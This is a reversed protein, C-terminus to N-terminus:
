IASYVEVSHCIAAMVEEEEEEEDEEKEKNPEGGYLQASDKNMPSSKERPQATAVSIDKELCDRAFQKCSFCRENDRSPSRSADRPRRTPSKSPSRVRSQRSDSRYHYSDPRCYSGRSTNYGRSKSRSFSYGRRNRGYSRQRYSGRGSDLNSVTVKAEAEITIPKIPHSQQTQRGQSRTNMRDLVEKLRDIKSHLLKYQEFKVVKNKSSTHTTLSM